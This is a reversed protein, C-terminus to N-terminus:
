AAAATGLQAGGHLLSHLLKMNGVIGHFREQPIIRAVQNFQFVLRAFNRRAGVLNGTALHLITVNNLISLNLVHAFSATQVELEGGAEAGTEGPSNTPASNGHRGQLRRGQRLANQYMEIAAMRCMTRRDPDSKESATAVAFRSLSLALNFMVAVVANVWREGLAAQKPSRRAGTRPTRTPDLVAPTM